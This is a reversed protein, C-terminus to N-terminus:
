KEKNTMDTFNGKGDNHLIKTQDLGNTDTWNVMLDLDGDNDRDVISLQYIQLDASHTIPISTKGVIKVEITGPKTIELKVTEKVPTEDMNKEFCNEGCEGGFVITSIAFTIIFALLKM